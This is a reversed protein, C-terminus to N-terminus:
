LHLLRVANEGMVKAEDSASCGVLAKKMGAVSEPWPSDAHPYDSSFLIREAGWRKIAQRILSDESEVAWQFHELYELPHKKPGGSHV